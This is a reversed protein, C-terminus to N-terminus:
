SGIIQAFKKIREEAVPEIYRGNAWTHVDALYSMKLYGATHVFPQFFGKVSFTNSGCSLAAMQKGELARGLSQEIQMCDTLRDLFVKLMGSMSYWYVPTAFIYCDYDAVLRRMLSLFDDEKHVHEYEYHGITYEHLNVVDVSLENALVKIAEDTNGASRHSGNIVVYRSM